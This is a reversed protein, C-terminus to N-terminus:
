TRAKCLCQVSGSPCGGQLGSSEAQGSCCYTGLSPCSPPNTLCTVLSGVGFGDDTGYCCLGFDCNLGSCCSTGGSVCNSQYADCASAAHAAMPATLSTIIPLVILSALGVRKLAERRAIRSMAKPANAKELLNAKRLEEIALFVFDETAEEKFQETLKAAIFKTDSAGDLNNWVFATTENLSFVKDIKLDYILLDNDVEQVVIENQRAKPINM